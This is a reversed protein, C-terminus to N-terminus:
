YLIPEVLDIVENGVELVHKTTFVSVFHSSRTPLFNGGVWVPGTPGNSFHNFFNLLFIVTGPYSSFGAAGIALDNVKNSQGFFNSEGWQGRLRRLRFFPAGLFPAEASSCTVSGDNNVGSSSLVCRFHVSPSSVRPFDSPLSGGDEGTRGAAMFAGSSAHVLSRDAVTATADM